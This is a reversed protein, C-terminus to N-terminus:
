GGYGGGPALSIAAECMDLRCLAGGNTVATTSRTNSWLAM